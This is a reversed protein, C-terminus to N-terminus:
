EAIITLWAIRGSEWAKMFFYGKMLIVNQRPSVSSIM